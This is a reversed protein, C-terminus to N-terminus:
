AEADYEIRLYNSTSRSKRSIGATNFGVWITGDRSELLYRVATSSNSSYRLFEFQEKLDDVVFVGSKHGLWFQGQRDQLASRLAYASRFANSIVPSFYPKAVLPEM